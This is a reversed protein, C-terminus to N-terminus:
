KRPTNERANENFQSWCLELSASYNRECEKEIRKAVVMPFRWAEAYCRSMARHAKIICEQYDAIAKRGEKSNHRSGFLKFPNGRGETFYKCKKKHEVCADRYKKKLAKCDRSRSTGGKEGAKVTHCERFYEAAWKNCKQYAKNCAEPGWIDVARENKRNRRFAKIEEKSAHKFFWTFWDEASVQLNIGIIPDAIIGEILYDKEPSLEELM